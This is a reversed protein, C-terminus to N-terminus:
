PTLASFAFFGGYGRLKALADFFRGTLPASLGPTEIANITISTLDLFSEGCDILPIGSM